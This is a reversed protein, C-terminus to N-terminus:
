VMTGCEESQARKGNQDLFWIEEEAEEHLSILHAGQAECWSEADTWSMPVRSKLYCFHLSKFWSLSPCSSSSLNAKCFFPLEVLCDLDFWRLLPSETYHTSDLRLFFTFLLLAYCEDSKKYWEKKTTYYGAM